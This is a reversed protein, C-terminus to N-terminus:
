IDSFFFLKTERKRWRLGKDLLIEDLRSRKIAIGKHENLYVQLRDLTWSGFRWDNKKKVHAM